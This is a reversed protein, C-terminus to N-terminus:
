LLVMFIVSVVGSRQQNITSVISEDLVMRLMKLGKWDHGGLEM